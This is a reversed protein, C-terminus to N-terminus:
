AAPVEAPAALAERALDIATQLPDDRYYAGQGQLRLLLNVLQITPIGAGPAADDLQYLARLDRLAAMTEDGVQYPKEPLRPLCGLAVLARNLTEGNDSCSYPALAVDAPVTIATESQIFASEAAVDPILGIEEYDGQKMSLLKVTTLVVTSDDALTIHYQGRAKGHTHSGISTAYGTDCLSATIIESASASDGDILVYIRRFAHGAGDSVKYRVDLEDTEPDRTATSFFVVRQPLLDTIISLALEMDGGPNGRLDLILCQEETRGMTNLDRLFLLYSGDNIIASWHMYFINDELRAGYYCQTVLTCRLLSFRKETEGRLVTVNVRTGDEGRLLQAVASVTYGAVSVGDVATIVDGRLVGAEAAGGSPHLESVLAGLPHSQLTMGVGVYSSTAYFTSEYDGAPVYMTHSDYASLMETMLQVYLDPDAALRAIVAEKSPSGPLVRGLPDDRSSSELGYERILEATACLAEYQEEPTFAQAYASFASAALLCVALLLAFLRKKM